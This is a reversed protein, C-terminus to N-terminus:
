LEWNAAGAGNIQKQGANTDSASKWLHWPPKRATMAARPPRGSHARRTFQMCQTLLPRRRRVLADSRRALPAIDGLALQSISESGASKVCTPRPQSVHQTKLLFSFCGSPRWTSTETLFSHREIHSTYLVCKYILHTHTSTPHRM